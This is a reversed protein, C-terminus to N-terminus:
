REGFVYGSEFEIDLWLGSISTSHISFGRVDKVVGIGSARLPWHIVRVQLGQWPVRGTCTSFEHLHGRNDERRVINYDFWAFTLNGHVDYSAVLVEGSAIFAGLDVTVQVGFWPLRGPPRFRGLAYYQSPHLCTPRSNSQLLWASEKISTANRLDYRAVSHFKHYPMSLRQLVEQREIASFEDFVRRPARPTFQRSYVTTDLVSNPDLTVVLKIFKLSIGVPLDGLDCRVLFSGNIGFRRTFSVQDGESFTWSDPPPPRRIHLDSRSDDSISLEAFLAHVEGAPMPDVVGLETLRAIVLALGGVSLRALSKTNNKSTPNIPFSARFRAMPQSVRSFHVPLAAKTPRKSSLSNPFKIPPIFMVLASVSTDVADYDDEVVLGMDGKYRGKTPVVWSGRRLGPETQSQPQFGVDTLRICQPM